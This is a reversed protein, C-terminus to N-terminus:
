DKHDKHVLSDMRDLQGLEVQTDRSDKTVRLDLSDRPEQHDLQVRSALHVRHEM